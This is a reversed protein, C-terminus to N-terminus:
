NRHNIMMKRILTVLSKDLGTAQKIMMKWGNVDKYWENKGQPTLRGNEPVGLIMSTPSLVILIM